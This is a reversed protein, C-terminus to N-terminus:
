PGHTDRTQSEKLADEIHAKLHAANVADRVDHVATRVIQKTEKVGEKVVEQVVEKTKGATTEADDGVNVNVNTVPTVKAEQEDRARKLAEVWQRPIPVGARAANETISITETVCFCLAVATAWPMPIVREIIMAAAVFALIMVKKLMGRYSATSCIKKTIWAAILGTFVDLMMLYLLAVCAPNSELWKQFTPNNQLDVILRQLDFILKTGTSEQALLGGMEVSALILGLRGM